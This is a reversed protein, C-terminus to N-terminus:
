EGKASKIANLAEHYCMYLNEELEIGMNMTPHLKKVALTLNELVELLQTNQKLPQELLCILDRENILGNGTYADFEIEFSNILKQAEM